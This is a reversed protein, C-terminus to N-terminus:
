STAGKHKLKKRNSNWAIWGFARLSWYILRSRVPMQKKILEFFLQDAVKRSVDQLRYFFDHLIAERLYDMSFPHGLLRWFIRPLSAGDSEFGAPVHFFGKSTLYNEEKLTVCVTNRGRKLMKVLVHGM